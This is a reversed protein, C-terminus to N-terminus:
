LPGLIIVSVCRLVCLFYDFCFLLFLSCPLLWNAIPSNFYVYVSQCLAACESVCFCCCFMAFFFLFWDNLSV